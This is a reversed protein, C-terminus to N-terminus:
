SDFKKWVGRKLSDNKGMKKSKLPDLLRLGGSFFKAQMKIDHDSVFWLQTKKYSRFKEERKARLAVSKAYVEGQIRLLM